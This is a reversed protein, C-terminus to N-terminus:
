KIYNDQRVLITSIISHVQVDLLTLQSIFAAEDFSPSRGRGGRRPHPLLWFYFRWHLFPFQLFSLSHRQQVTDIIEDEDKLAQEVSGTIKRVERDFDINGEQQASSSISLTQKKSSLFSGPWLSVVAQSTKGSLAGPDWCSLLSDGSGKSVNIFELEKHPAPGSPRGCLGHHSREASYKWGSISKGPLSILSVKLDSFDGTEILWDTLRHDIRSISVWRFIPIFPLGTCRLASFSSPPLSTKISTVSNVLGDVLDGSAKCPCTPLHISPQSSVLHLCLTQWPGHIPWILSVIHNNIM